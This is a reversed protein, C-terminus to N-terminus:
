LNNHQLYVNGFENMLTILENEKNDVAKFYEMKALDFSWYTKNTSVGNKFVVVKYMKNM